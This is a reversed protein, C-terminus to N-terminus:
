SFLIWCSPKQMRQFMEISPGVESVLSFKMGTPSYTCENVTTCTCVAEVNAWGSDKLYMRMVFGVFLVSKEFKNKSYLEVHKPCYRQGDGPTWCQVRLLM